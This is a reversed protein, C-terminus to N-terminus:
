QGNLLKMLDDSSSGSNPYLMSFASKIQNLDAASLKGANDKLLKVAEDKSPASMIQSVIPSVNQLQPSNLSTPSPFKANVAALIKNIDAGEQAMQPGYENIFGLAEDRNNANLVQTAWGATAQQSQKDNTFQQNRLNLNGQSVGLNGQSIATAANRNAMENEVNQQNLGFQDRQLQAQDGKLNNKGELGSILDSVGNFM